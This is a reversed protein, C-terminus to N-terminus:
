CVLNKTYLTLYFALFSNIQFQTQSTLKQYKAQLPTHSIIKQLLDNIEQKFYVEKTTRKISMLKKIYALSDKGCLENISRMDRLYLEIIFKINPKLEPKQLEKVIITAYSTNIRTLTRAQTLAEQDTEKYITIKNSVLEAIRNGRELETPFVEEGTETEKQSGIGKGETDNKYYEGAFSRLSQSIRSRSEYLFLSVREANLELFYKTHKTRMEKALYFLANPITKERIFLHTPNLHNITYSFVDDKCFRFFRRFLNSYQRIMHFIMLTFYTTEDKQLLFHYMLILLFNSGVDSQVLSDKAKTDVYFRKIFAKIDKESLNTMHILENYYKKWDSRYCPQVLNNLEQVTLKTIYNKIKADNFTANTLLIQM